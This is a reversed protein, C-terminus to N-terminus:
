VAVMRNLGSKQRISSLCTDGVTRQQVGNAPNIKQMLQKLYFAPEFNEAL